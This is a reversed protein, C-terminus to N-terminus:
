RASLTILYVPASALSATFLLFPSYVMFFLIVDKTVAGHEKCSVNRKASACCVPFIKRM